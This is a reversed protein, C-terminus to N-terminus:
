QQWELLEKKTPITYGLKKINQGAKALDGNSNAVFIKQMRPTLYTGKEVKKTLTKALARDGQDEEWIERTRFATRNLINQAEKESAKFARNAIDAQPYGVAKIDDQYIKDFANLRADALDAAGELAAIKMKAPHFQDGAEVSVSQMVKDMWLNNSKASISSLNKVLLEKQAQALLAGDPGQFENLGTRRAINSWSLPGTQGTSVAQRMNQIALRGLRSAMRESEFEKVAPAAAKTNYERDREFKDQNVKRMELATKAEEQNQKFPSASLKMIQQDTLPVFDPSTPRQLQTKQEQIRNQEPFASAVRETERIQQIPSIQRQQMQGPFQQDQYTEQQAPLQGNQAYGMLNGMLRQGGFQPQMQSQDQLQFQRSMGPMQDETSNQDWASQEAAQSPVNNTGTNGVISQRYADAGSVMGATKLYPKYLEVANKISAESAGAALASNLASQIQNMSPNEPLTSLANQLIQGSKASQAKERKEKGMLMAADAFYKGATEIGRALSDNTVVIPAIM